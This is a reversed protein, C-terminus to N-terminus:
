EMHYKTYSRIPKGLSNKHDGITCKSFNIEESLTHLIFLWGCASSLLNNRTLVELLNAEHTFTSLSSFYFRYYTEIMSYQKGCELQRAHDCLYGELDQFYTSHRMEPAYGLSPEATGLWTSRYVRIYCDFVRDILATM